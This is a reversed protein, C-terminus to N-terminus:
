INYALDIIMGSGTGGAVGSIILFDLKGVGDGDTSKMYMEDIKNFLLARIEEYANSFMLRGIQRNGAAGNIGINLEPM